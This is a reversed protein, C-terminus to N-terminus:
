KIDVSAELIYEKIVQSNLEWDAYERATIRANNSIEVLEESKLDNIERIRASLSEVSNTEFVFGNRGDEIFEKNAEIDSVLCIRGASLAEMLSISAGDIPSTSVYMWSNSLLEILETNDYYYFWFFEVNPPIESRIKSSISDGPHAMNVFVKGLNSFKSLAEILLFNNHLENWTRTCIMELTKGKEFPVKLLSNIDAGYVIKLIRSEDHIKSIIKEQSAQCDVIFRSGHQAMSKLIMLDNNTLVGDELDYTLSVLVVDRPDISKDLLYLADLGLVITKPRPSVVPEVGSYPLGKEIEKLLTAFRERHRSEEISILNWSSNSSMQFIKGDSM